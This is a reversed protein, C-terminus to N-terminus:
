SSSDPKCTQSCVNEFEEEWSEMFLTRLPVQLHERASTQAHELRTLFPRIWEQKLYNIEELEIELGLHGILDELSVTEMDRHLTFRGDETKMIYHQQSLRDLAYFLLEQRIPIELVLSHTTEWCDPNRSALWLRRLITLAARLVRAPQFHRSDKAYSNSNLSREEPLVAVIEAGLLAAAWSLYLWILFIPVTALTGYLLQYFPFNTVYVGFGYKLAEFTTTTFIAGLLAHRWRVFTNPIIVYLLFFALLEMFVPLLILFLSNVEEAGPLGLDKAKLYVFSSASFSLGLLLPGMTITTWFTIINSIWTRKGPSKWISDFASQITLLLLISTVALSTVGFATSHHANSIFRTFYEGVTKGATPVFTAFIMDHIKSEMGAFAPFMSLVAFSVALIPAIALLTTYSLGAATSLCGDHFFRRAVVRAFIM